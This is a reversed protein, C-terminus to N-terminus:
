HRLCMAHKKLRKKVVDMETCTDDSKTAMFRQMKILAISSGEDNDWTNTYHEM